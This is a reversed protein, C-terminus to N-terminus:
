DHIGNSSEYLYAIKKSLYKWEDPVEKKLFKLDNESIYNNLAEELNRIEEPFDKKLIKCRDNNYRDQKTLTKVIKGINLIEHDDTFKKRM